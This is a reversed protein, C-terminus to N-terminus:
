VKCHTSCCLRTVTEINLELDLARSLGATGNADRSASSPVWLLVKQFVKDFEHRPTWSWVNLQSGASFSPRVVALGLTPFQCSHGIPPLSSSVTDRSAQQM